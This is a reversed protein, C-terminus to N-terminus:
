AVAVVLSAVPLTRVPRATLQDDLLEATAVTDAVPATVATPTPVAPMVAALPPCLPVAVIVTMTGGTAETVTDSAAEVTTIPEVVWAVAAVLSALPLTRVPRATLQNDLLGATAVTDVVPSTVATLTPVAPMVAVLSPLVPDAVTVTMEADTAETVTDTPDEIIPTPLVVCAVAVVFSPAPFTRTPRDTVHDESLVETAVTLVVPTTVPTAAPLALMVAVLSPCVPNAPIVTAGGRPKPEDPSFIRTTSMLPMKVGVSEPGLLPTVVNM